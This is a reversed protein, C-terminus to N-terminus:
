YCFGVWNKCLDTIKAGLTWSNKGSVKLGFSINRLAQDFVPQFELFSEWQSSHSKSPAWFNNSRSAKFLSRFKMSTTLGIFCWYNLFWDEKIVFWVELNSECHHYGPAICSGSSDKLKKGGFINGTLVARNGGAAYELHLYILCEHLFNVCPMFFYQAEPHFSADHWLSFWLSSHVLTHATGPLPESLCSLGGISPKVSCACLGFSVTTVQAITQLFVLNLTKLGEKIETISRHEKM